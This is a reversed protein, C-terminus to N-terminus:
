ADFVDVGEEWLTKFDEILPALYVDIDNGPQKPGSIMMSMMVYKRKTCLWPPLNYIVLLVPWASHTSSLSGFPNFGDTCLGLRLNRSEGGFEPFMSDTKKWQPSDAPHRLYRGDSIKEDCHWRLKKAEVENAFLRKFRPVIPLYWMVKLPVGKKSGDDDGVTDKM